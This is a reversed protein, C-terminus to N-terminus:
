CKVGVEKMLINEIQKPKTALIIIESNEANKTIKRVMRRGVMKWMKVNECMKTDEM